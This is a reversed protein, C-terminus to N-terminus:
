AVKVKRYCDSCYVPKGNRPEFPVQATKGCDSCVASYMQRPAFGTNYGTSNGAISTQRAKRTARCAPCRKPNNVFGRSQFFEQEAPTFEFNKGCDCCPITKAQLSM